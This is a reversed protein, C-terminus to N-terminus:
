SITYSLAPLPFDMGLEIECVQDQELGASIANKAVFHRNFVEDFKSKLDLFFNCLDDIGSRCEILEEQSLTEYFSQLEKHVDDPTNNKSFNMSQHDPEDGKSRLGINLTVSSSEVKKFNKYKQILPNDKRAVCYDTVDFIMSAVEELMRDFDCEVEQTFTSFLKSFQGYNRLNQKLTIAIEAGDSPECLDEVCKISSLQFFIVATTLLLAKM